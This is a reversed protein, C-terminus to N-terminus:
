LPIVELQDATTFQNLAQLIPKEARKVQMCMPAPAALIFTGNKNERAECHSLVQDFAAQGLTGILRPGARQWVEVWKPIPALPLLDVDPTPPISSEEKAQKARKARKRKAAQSECTALLSHPGNVTYHKDDLISFAVGMLDKTEELDSEVMEYIAVLDSEWAQKTASNQPTSLHSIELFHTFLVDIDNNNKIISEPKLSDTRGGDKAGKKNDPQTLIDNKPPIEPNLVDYIPPKIISSDDNKPPKNEPNTRGLAELFRKELCLLRYAEGSQVLAIDVEGAQLEFRRQIREKIEEETLGVSILYINTYGRGGKRGQQKWYILEGSEVLKSLNHFVNRQVTKEKGKLGIMKGLTEHAPFCFGDDDSFEVLALLMMKISGAAQSQQWIRDTILKKIELSM